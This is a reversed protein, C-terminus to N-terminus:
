EFKCSMFFLRLCSCVRVQKHLQEEATFRLLGVHAASQTELDVEITDSVFKHSRENRDFLVRAVYKGRPLGQVEFFYSLPLGIIREVRSPESIPSFEVRLNPQWRELQLGVVAGTVITTPLEEFVVFDVGKVDSSTM